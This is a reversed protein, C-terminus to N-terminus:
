TIIFNHTKKMIEYNYKKIKKVKKKKKFTMIFKHTKKM